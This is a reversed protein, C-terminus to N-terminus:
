LHTLWDQGLHGALILDNSLHALLTRRFGGPNRLYGAPNRDTSLISSLPMVHELHHLNRVASWPADTVAKMEAQHNACEM